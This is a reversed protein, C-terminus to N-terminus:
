VMEVGIVAAIVGCLGRAPAKEIGNGRGVELTAVALTAVALTAVEIVVVVTALLEVAVVVIVSHRVVVLRHVTEVATGDTAMGVAAAAAVETMWEATVVATMKDVTTVEVAGGAARKLSLSQKGSRNKQAIPNCKATGCVRHFTGVAVVLLHPPAIAAEVVVATAAVVVVAAVVAAGTKHLNETVAEKGMM